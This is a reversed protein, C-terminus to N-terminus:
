GPGIVYPSVSPAGPGYGSASGFNPVQPVQLAGANELTGPSPFNVGSNVGGLAGNLLLGQQANGTIGSIASNWANAQGITGAAQANGAQTMLNGVNTAAGLGQGSVNFLQNFGQQQGALQANYGALSRNFVDNYTSNALGTNYQDLAKLTGGGLSGGMASSGALVGREGQQQTFQYGPTAAAQDATPATFAPISGPGLTGNQFGQMLQGISQTGPNAWPQIQQEAQQAAAVEKNAASGAAHSSIAGSAVSGIGGIIAATAGTGLGTGRGGQSAEHLDSRDAEM